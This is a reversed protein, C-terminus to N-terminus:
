KLEDVTVARPHPHMLVRMDLPGKLTKTKRSELDSRTIFPVRLVEEEDGRQLVFYWSIGSITKTTDSRVKVSVIFDAEKVVESTPEAGTRPTTNIENVFRDEHGRQHNIIVIEPPAEDTTRLRAREGNTQGALSAPLILGWGFALLIQLMAECSIASVRILPFGNLRNGLTAGPSTVQSFGPTILVSISM